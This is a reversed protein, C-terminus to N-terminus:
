ELSRLKEEIKSLKDLFASEKHHEPINTKKKKTQIPIKVKSKPLKSQLSITLNKIESMSKLLEKTLEKKKTRVEHYERYKKLSHIVQRSSLLLERRLDQADHLEVYFDEDESM